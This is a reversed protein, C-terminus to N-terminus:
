PVRARAMPHSYRRRHFRAAVVIVNGVRPWFNPNMPRPLSDITTSM